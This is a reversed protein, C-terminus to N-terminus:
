KLDEYRTYTIVNYKLAQSTVTALQSWLVKSYNVQRTGASRVKFFTGGGMFPTENDKAHRAIANACRSWQECTRRTPVCPAEFLSM